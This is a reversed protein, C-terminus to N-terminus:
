NWGRGNDINNNLPPYTDVYEEYPGLDEPPFSEEYDRNLRAIAGVLHDINPLGFRLHSNKLKQSAVAKGLKTYRTRDPYLDVPPINTFSFNAKAEAEVMDVPEPEVLEMNDDIEAAFNLYGKDIYYKKEHDSLDKWKFVSRFIDYTPYENGMYKIKYFDYIGASRRPFIQETLSLKRKM